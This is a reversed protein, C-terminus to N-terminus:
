LQILSGALTDGYFTLETLEEQSSSETWSFRLPTEPTGFIERNCLFDTLRVIYRGTAVMASLREHLARPRLAVNTSISHQYSGDENQTTQSNIATCFIKRFDTNTSILVKGDVPIFSSVGEIPIFEFTLWDGQPKHSTNPIINQEFM